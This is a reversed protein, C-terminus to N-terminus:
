RLHCDVQARVAPASVGGDRKGGAGSASQLQLCGAVTCAAQRERAAWWGGGVPLMPAARGASLRALHVCSGPCCGSRATARARARAPLYCASARARAPACCARAGARAPLAAAPESARAPPPRCTAATTPTAHTSATQTTATRATGAPAAARCSPLHSAQGPPGPAAARTGPPSPAPLTRAAHRSTGHRCQLAGTTM